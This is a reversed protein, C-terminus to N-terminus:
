IKNKKVNEVIECKGSKTENKGEKFVFSLDQRNITIINPNEQNYRKLAEQIRKKSVLLYQLPKGIIPTKYALGRPNYETELGDHIFSITNPTTEHKAVMVINASEEEQDLYSYYVEANEEKLNFSITIEKQAEDTPVYKCYLTTTKSYVMSTLFFSILFFLNKMRFYCPKENNM